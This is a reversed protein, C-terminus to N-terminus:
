CRLKTNRNFEQKFKLEITALKNQLPKWDPSYDSSKYVRKQIWQEPNNRNYDTIMVIDSQMVDTRIIKHIFAPIQYLKLTFEPTQEDEVYVSQGNEYVIRDEEYAASPFGFYGPLRLMNSILNEGFDKIKTDDDLDGLEGGISYEIKVTEDALYPQYQKLCFEPSYLSFNDGLSTSAECKIKYNGEDHLTLVKKWEVNYGVFVEGYENTFYGFAYDTGYTSGGSLTAIEVDDKLLKIIASDVVDSFWWNARFYDNKFADTSNLDALANLMFDSCCDRTASNPLDLVVPDTPVPDTPILFFLETICEGNM